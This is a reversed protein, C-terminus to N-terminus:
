GPVTTKEHLLSWRTSAPALLKSCDAHGSLDLQSGYTIAYAIIKALRRWYRRQQIRHIKRGNQRRIKGAAQNGPLLLVAAVIQRPLCAAVRIADPQRFDHQLLRLHHRDDRIVQAKKFQKWRQGVQGGCRLIRYQGGPAPETIVAPRAIQVLRRLLYHSLVATHKRQLALLNGGQGAYAWGRRRRNTCKSEALRMRNEVAIHLPHQATKETDVTVRACLLNFGPQPLNGIRQSWDATDLSVGLRM